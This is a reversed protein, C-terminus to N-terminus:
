KELIMKGTQMGTESQITYYYIGSPLLTGDLEVEHKGSNINGEILNSVLQGMMNYVKISINESEKLNFSITTKDKFPNPYNYVNFLNMASEQIDITSGFAIKFAYPFEWAYADAIGTFELWYQGANLNTNLDLYSMGNNVQSYIPITATVSNYIAVTYSPLSINYVKINLNGNSPMNFTYDDYDVPDSTALSQKTINGFYLKTPSINYAQNFYTPEDIGQVCGSYQEPLVSHWTSNSSAPQDLIFTDANLTYYTNINASWSEVVGDGNASFINGTGIVCAYSLDNPINKQNLGIINDGVTGNCNVNVNCFPSITGYIQTTNEVGGFLYVGNYGTSYSSRLDRVSESLEDLGTFWSMLNGSSANSGGHPTGITLLKAVNHKLNSPQVWNQLYDRGALGGMSHGVLIVKDRGTVQLVNTIADVVAYGQKAIASQNSQVSNNGISGNTNVDFNIRYFDAPYLFSTNTWDKYNTIMNATATNADQNLCFDLEGGYSWGYWEQFRILLKNWTTSNSNLGHIFIMPYPLNQEGGISMDVLLTSNSYFLNNAENSESIQGYADIDYFIWETSNKITNYPLPFTYQINNNSSLSPISELSLRSIFTANSFNTSTSIYINIYCQGSAVNGNNLVNFTFTFNEGVSINNPSTSSFTSTLDPQAYTKLSLFLFPVIFKIKM